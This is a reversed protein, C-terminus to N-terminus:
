TFNKCCSYLEVLNEDPTGIDIDGLAFSFRSHYKKTKELLQTIYDHIQKKDSDRFFYPDLIFEVDAEPFAELALVPDSTFGVQIMDVHPIKRYIDIYDDFNGCHHLQFKQNLEYLKSIIKMDADFLCRAYSNPGILPVTCNLLVVVPPLSHHAANYDLTKMWLHLSYDILKFFLPSEDALYYFLNNGALQIIDNAVGNKWLYPTASKGYVANMKEVQALISNYPFVATIDDPFSLNEIEQESLPISIPYNDEPYLVKGGATAVTTANILNPPIVTPQPNPDGIEMMPFRESILKDMSMATQVRYEPDDFYQQGFTIGYFHKWWSPMWTLTLASIVLPEKLTFCVDANFELNDRVIKKSDAM